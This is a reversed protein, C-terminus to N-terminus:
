ALVPKEIGLEGHFFEMDRSIALHQEAESLRSLINHRDAHPGIGLRANQCDCFYDLNM